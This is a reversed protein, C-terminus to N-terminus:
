AGCHCPDSGGCDHVVTVADGTLTAYLRTRSLEVSSRSRDGSTKVM